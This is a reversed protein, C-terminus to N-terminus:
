FPIYMSILGLNSLIRVIYGTYIPGSFPLDREPIHQFSYCVYLVTYYTNQIIRTKFNRVRSSM